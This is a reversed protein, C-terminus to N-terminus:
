PERGGPPDPFSPPASPRSLFGLVVLSAAYSPPVAVLSDFGFVIAALPAWLITSWFCSCVDCAWPKVGSLVRADVWPLTRVALVFGPVTLALFAFASLVNM